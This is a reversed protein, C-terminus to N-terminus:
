SDYRQCATLKHSSVLIVLANNNHAECNHPSILNRNFVNSIHGVNKVQFCSVNFQQNRQSSVTEDLTTGIADTVAARCTPSIHRSTKKTRGASKLKTLRGFRLCSMILTVYFASSYPDNYSEKTSSTIKPGM